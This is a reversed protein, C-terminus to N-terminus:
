GKDAKKKLGNIILDRNGKIEQDFRATTECCHQQVAEMQTKTVAVNKDVKVLCRKVDSLRMSIGRVAEARAMIKLQQKIEQLDEARVEEREKHKRSRLWAVVIATINTAALGILGGTVVPEAM